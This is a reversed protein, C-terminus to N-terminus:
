SSDLPSSVKMKGVGLASATTVNTHSQMTAGDLEWCRDLSIRNATRTSGTICFHLLGHFSFRTRPALNIPLAIPLLCADQLMQHIPLHATAREKEPPTQHNSPKITTLFPFAHLLEHTLGAYSTVHGHEVYGPPQRWDGERQCAVAWTGQILNSADKDTQLQMQPFGPLDSVNVSILLSLKNGVPELLV